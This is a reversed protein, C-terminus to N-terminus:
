PRQAMVMARLPRPHGEVTQNPHNSSLGDVLSQYPMWETSRQEQTTTQTQDLVEVWCFGSQTLWDVLTEISPLAYVNRMRAYRDQITLVQDGWHGASTSEEPAVLTELVVWGGPTLRRFLGGLHAIHHAQQYRRHSLVGMSFVVDFMGLTMPLSELRTAWLANRDCGALSEILHHQTIFLGMPDCGVVSDAGAELMRWGFYGNGAGVDLVRRDTLEVHHALRSWKLECRWEADVGVGAVCWPGKRWPVLAELVHEVPSPDAAPAGVHVVGNEIVWGPEVEPIADLVARWDAWRGDRALAARNFLHRDPV